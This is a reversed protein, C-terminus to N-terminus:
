RKREFKGNKCTHNLFQAWEEFKCSCLIMVTSDYASQNRYEYSHRCEKCKGLVKIQKTPKRAMCRCQLDLFM